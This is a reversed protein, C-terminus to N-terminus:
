HSFGVVFSPLDLENVVIQGVPDNHGALCHAVHAHLCKVGQRTGGVGGTPAPLDPREIAATRREAYEDHCQQLAAADVMVEYRHVGGAGEIRSVAEVIEPDVLWYLTPMPTGDRLHPENQIVVPTGDFRRVVVAFKGAPPRGLQATVAAVDEEPPEPLATM